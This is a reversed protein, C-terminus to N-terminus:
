GASFLGWCVWVGKCIPWLPRFSPTSCHSYAVVTGLGSIHGQSCALVLPLWWSSSNAVQIAAASNSQAEVDPHLNAWWWGGGCPVQCHTGCFPQLLSSPHLQYRPLLQHFPKYFTWPNPIQNAGTSSFQSHWGISTPYTSPMSLLSPPQNPWSSVGIGM